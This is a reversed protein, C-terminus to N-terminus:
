RFLDEKGGEGSKKKRSNKLTKVTKLTETESYPKHTDTM